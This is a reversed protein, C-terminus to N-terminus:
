IPGVAINEAMDTFSVKRHLPFRGSYPFGAATFFVKRQLSFRGSRIAIEPVRLTLGVALDSLTHHPDVEARLVARRSENAASAFLVAVNTNTNESVM